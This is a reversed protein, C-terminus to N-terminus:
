KGVPVKSNTKSFYMKILM